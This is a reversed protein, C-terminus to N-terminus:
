FFFTHSKLTGSPQKRTFLRGEEEKEEEEKEEKEELVYNEYIKKPVM